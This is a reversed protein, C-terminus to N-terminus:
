EKKNDSIKEKLIGSERIKKELTIIRALSVIWFTFGLIGFTEM